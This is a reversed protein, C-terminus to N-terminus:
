PYFYQYKSGSYKHVGHECLFTIVFLILLKAMEEDHFKHSCAFQIITVCILYTILKTRYQACKSSSTDFNHVALFADEQGFAESSILLGTLTINM